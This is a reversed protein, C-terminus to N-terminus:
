FFGINTETVATNTSFHDQSHVLTEKFTSNVLEKEFNFDVEFLTKAPKYWGYKQHLSFYVQANERVLSIHTEM